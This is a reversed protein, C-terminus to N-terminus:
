PCNAGTALPPAPRPWGDHMPRCCIGCGHIPRTALRIPSSQAAGPSATTCIKRYCSAAALRCQLRGKRVVALSQRAIVISGEPAKELLRLAAAHKRRDGPAPIMGEAYVLVNTDLALRL